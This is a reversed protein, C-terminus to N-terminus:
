EHQDKENLGLKSVLVKVKAAMKDLRNIHAVTKNWSRVERAPIASSYMGPQNISHSIGSMAAVIVKDTIEIHGTIGAAGGILCYRGIKTSGAIGVKAAMATHAGIVVNHAIQVQNDIKVGTEIVTDELAGRDITTNAGIEVEDGILVGGLQPIKVWRGQDNAMGFGDSGIVAGSHIICNKGIKVRHYINVNSKLVSGQGILVDDSITCHANISVEDAIECNKGIVVYPGIKASSAIKASPDIIATPHIGTALVPTDDFLSAAKAFGLYPNSMVLANVPCQDKVENSLIVAAAKTEKLSTLYKPNTFFAIQHPGANQLTAFGTVMTKDDANLLDAGILKAIDALAYQKTM